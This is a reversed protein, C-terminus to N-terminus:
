PKPGLSVRPSTGPHIIVHAAYGPPGQMDSGDRSESRSPCAHYTANDTTYSDDRLFVFCSGISLWPANDPPTTDVTSLGWDAYHSLNESPIDNWDEQAGTFSVRWSAGDSSAAVHRSRLLGNEVRVLEVFDNDSITVDGWGSGSSGEIDVVVPMEYENRFISVFVNDQNGALTANFVDGEDAAGDPGPSFIRLEKPQGATDGGLDVAFNVANGWADTLIESGLPAYPGRWGAGLGVTSNFEWAPLVQSTYDRTSVYTQVWPQDAFGNDAIWNTSAASPAGSCSDAACRYHVGDHLVYDYNIYLLEPQPAYYKRGEKWTPAFAYGSTDPSILNWHSASIGPANGTTSEHRLLCSYVGSGHKVVSGALPELTGIDAIFGNPQLVGDTITGSRGAVGTKLADLVRRTSAIKQDDLRWETAAIKLIINDANASLVNGSADRLPDEPDFSFDIQRDPGASIAYLDDGYGDNNRDKGARYVVLASGWGDLLRNKRGQRLLFRRNNQKEAAGSPSPKFEFLDDDNAYNDVPLVVYPGNWNAAEVIEVFGGNETVGETKLSTEWLGVPMAADDGPADGWAVKVDTGNNNTQMPYDSGDNPHVFGSSGSDWNFVYLDPLKGFDGVYGGIVRDGRDDFSNPAGLVAFRLAEFLALTKERKAHNDMGASIPLVMATLVGLIGIVIILEMLTM